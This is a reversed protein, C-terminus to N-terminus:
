MVMGGCVNIVQGTIYSAKDSALFVVVNSIDNPRGFRLLPINKRVEEKINESLVKTMDTDIYGPAIANVRIGRQGFEKALTKTLAIVGAKSSAYNCQGVNGIEGVVSAINVISGSRQKLFIKSVNKCMNFTGILNVNLVKQFDEENMRLILNDKTIGANNVLLDIRGYKEMVENVINTAEDMKSVDGKIIFSENYQDCEKKVELAKEDSSNYNIVVNYGDKALDIAIQKGIGRTSGTVIAVKM